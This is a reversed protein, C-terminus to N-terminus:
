GQWDRLPQWAARFRAWRAQLRETRAADPEFCRQTAPMRLVDALPHGAALLALRAAGLAPGVEAAAGRSVPLDLLDALLQLWVDSRAGGGVALLRRPAAGAARLAALGDALGMAVGEIVARTLVDRAQGQRLGLFAGCAQPDAHPTREGALYPLFLPADAAAGGPEPTLEALLEAPGRGCIDAWWGLASAASLMVSMRHWLGPLAHCFTHVGQDPNGRADGCPVFIVGSTGLSLLGDSPDVVGVGLAGAANDGAGAAVRVDPPLGWAAAWGPRLTGVVDPSEHLTPLAGEGLGSAQLMPASWRRAAVDLWLTGAADSCDSSLAGCLRWVLWDKPLLVTAVRAHLEPEHEAMWMLKPATFGAMARNATIARTRPELAELRACQAQARGDNWLIAPRLVQGDADLTVAGHMQGAVALARVRRWRAPDADQRLRAIVRELASWWDQPRQESWGPQPRQVTLPATAEALLTGDAALLVAKLGSTGLDLGLVHDQALPCAAAAAALDSPASM